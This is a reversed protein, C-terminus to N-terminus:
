ESLRKTPAAQDIEKLKLANLAYMAKLHWQGDNVVELVVKTFEGDRFYEKIMYLTKSKEEYAVYDSKKIIRSAESIRALYISPWKAAMKDLDEALIYIWVDEGFDVGLSKEVARAIRGLKVPEQDM